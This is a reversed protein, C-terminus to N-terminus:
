NIFKKFSSKEPVYKTFYYAIYQEILKGDVSIFKEYNDRDFKPIDVLKIKDIETEIENLNYLRTSNYFPDSDVYYFSRIGKIFSELGITNDDYLIFDSNDYVVEWSPREIFNAPLDGGIVGRIHDLSYLPHYMLFVKFKSGYFAAVLDQIISKYLKLDYSFAYALSFNVNKNKTSVDVNNFHTHRLAGAIEIKVNPWGWELFKDYIAKGVVKIEDPFLNMKFDTKSPFYNLLKYSIGTHQYGCLITSSNLAAKNLPYTKEWPQNEYPWFIKKPNSNLIKKAVVDELFYFFSSFSYYEEKLAENVVSTVDYGNLVLPNKVEKKSKYTKYFVLLLEKFSLLGQVLTVNYHKSKKSKLYNFFDKHDFVNYAVLCKSKSSLDSLLPEFYDDRLKKGVFNRKILYSRFIYDFEKYKIRKSSTIKYLLNFLLWGFLRKYFVVKKKKNGSKLKIVNGFKEYLPKYLVSDEDNLIFADVKENELFSVIQFYKSIKEFFKTQGECRGILVSSLYSDNENELLINSFFDNYENLFFSLEVKKFKLDDSKYVIM